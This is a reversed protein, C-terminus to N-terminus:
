EGEINDGRLEEFEGPFRGHEDSIVIGNSSPRGDDLFTIHCGPCELPADVRPLWVYGCKSCLYKVVKTEEFQLTM